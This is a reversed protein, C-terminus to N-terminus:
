DANQVQLVWPSGAGGPSGGGIVTTGRV